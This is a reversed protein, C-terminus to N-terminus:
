YPPWGVLPGTDEKEYSLFLANARNIDIDRIVGMLRLRLALCLYSFVAQLEQTRKSKLSPSSESPQVCLRSQGASITRLPLLDPKLPVSLLRYRVKPVVREKRESPIPRKLRNKVPDLM